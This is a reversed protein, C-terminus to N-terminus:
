CHKTGLQDWLGFKMNSYKLIKQWTKSGWQEIFSAYTLFYRIGKIDQMM